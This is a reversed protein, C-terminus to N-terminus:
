PGADSTRFRPWRFLAAPMAEGVPTRGRYAAFAAAAGALLCVTLVTARVFLLWRRLFPIPRDSDIVASDSVASDIVASSPGTDWRREAM